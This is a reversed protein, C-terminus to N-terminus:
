AFFRGISRDIAVPNEVLEENNRALAKESKVTGCRNCEPVSM